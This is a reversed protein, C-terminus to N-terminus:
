KKLSVCVIEKDNRIFACGNAFAPHTWVVSRKFAGNTPEVVKARSVEEYGKPTLKAIILEGKENFLFYRDGNRTIFATGSNAPREGTTPSTTEWLREGTELKVARLQGPQDVGYLISDDIVPTMNVPYVATNNKGRWVEEAAPKDKALKILVAKRGIGGAFLYDGAKQPTMISMGYDPKLAISWYEKGTAPDLGHVALPDWFVIQRVGGAEIVGPPCYGAGDPEAPTKLSKWVEKGTDKDFAVLLAEPGAVLTIVNKGDVLPHGTFGWLPTKAGYDKKFDKAWLVTGNDANLCTFNGEAGVAYVKGGSVTPTCRPGGPYSIAYEVAAEHKWVEKGTAADLCLMRETGKVPTRNGPDNHKLVDAETVFDPVYVKGNAVAPGAYGWAVPTRWLVKPGDKPFSEVIGTEKWVDDRNPGMWQPWDDGRAAPIVLAAVAFAALPRILRHM